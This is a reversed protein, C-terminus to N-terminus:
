RRYLAFVGTSKGFGGLGQAAKWPNSLADQFTTVMVGGFTNWALFVRDRECNM